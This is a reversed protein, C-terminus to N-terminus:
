LQATKKRRRKKEREKKEEERKGEEEEKCGLVLGLVLGSGLVFGTEALAANTV